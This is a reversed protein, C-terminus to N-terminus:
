SVFRSIQSRGAVRCVVRSALSPADLSSAPPWIWPAEGAEKGEKGKSQPLCVSLASPVPPATRRAAVLADSKNKKVPRLPEECTFTALLIKPRVFGRLRPPPSRPPCVCRQLWPRLRSPLPDTDCRGGVWGVITALGAVTARTGGVDKSRTGTAVFRSDRRCGASRGRAKIDEGRRMKSSSSPM